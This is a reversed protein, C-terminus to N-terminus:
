KFEDKKTHIKYKCIYIRRERPCAVEKQTNHTHEQQPTKNEVSPGLLVSASHRMGWQERWKWKIRTDESGQLHFLNTSMWFGNRGNLWSWGRGERWSTRCVLISDWAISYEVKRHLQTHQRQQLMELVQYNTCISICKEIWNGRDLHLLQRSMGPNRGCGLM